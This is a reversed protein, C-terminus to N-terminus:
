RLVKALQQEEGQSLLVESSILVYTLSNALIPKGNADVCDAEPIVTPEVDDLDFFPMPGYFDDLAAGKARTKIAKINAPLSFSDSLKRSINTNFATRKAIEVANPPALQEDTLCKVTRRPVVKGNTKLCWQTMENGENKAPGLVRGLMAKLFPFRAASSDDYFYVWAYWAFQCLHSIDVEKVFTTTHPNRGQLQFLYRATLPMIDARREVAYDWLVLPSHSLRIYNRVAEKVLGVYLEACNAWQTGQELLKLTTGINNCFDKVEFIKHSPHPDCVLIEPAGVDKAFQRLVAPYDRQLKMPYVKVFGKDSVFIQM